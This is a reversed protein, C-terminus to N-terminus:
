NGISKVRNPSFFFEVRRLFLVETELTEHNTEAFVLPGKVEVQKIKTDLLFRVGMSEMSQKLEEAIEYDLYSMIRTSADVITLEVGLARFICAYECGVVGAGVIVMSKPIHELAFIDDSDVVRWGDFPINEPRHPRSGTAILIYSASLTYADGSQPIVRVSFRTEM